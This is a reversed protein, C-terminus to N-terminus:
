NKQASVMSKEHFHTEKEVRLNMMVNIHRSHKANPIAAPAASFPLGVENMYKNAQKKKM